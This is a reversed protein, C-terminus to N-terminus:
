FPDLLTCLAGCTIGVHVQTTSRLDMESHSNRLWSALAGGPFGRSDLAAELTLCLRCDLRCAWTVEFSPGAQCECVFDFLSGLATFAEGCSDM